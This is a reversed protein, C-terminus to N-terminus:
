KPLSSYGRTKRPPIARINCKKKGCKSCRLRKAVEDLRADWGCLRGLVQPSTVREYQAASCTLILTYQGFEDSLKEVHFKTAMAGITGLDLL